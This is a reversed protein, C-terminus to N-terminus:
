EYLNHILKSYPVYDELLDNEILMDELNTFSEETIYPTTLWKNEMDKENIGLGHMM